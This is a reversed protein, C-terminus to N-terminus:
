KLVVVNMIGNTRRELLDKSQMRALAISVTGKALGTKEVVDSQFAVGECEVLYGYITKEAGRLRDLTQNWKRKKSAAPETPRRSQWFVLYVAAGATVTSLTVIWAVDARSYLNPIQETRTSNEAVVINITTPRSIRLCLLSLSAALVVIAVLTSTKSSAQDSM